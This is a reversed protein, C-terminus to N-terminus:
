ILPLWPLVYNISLLPPRARLFQKIHRFQGLRSPLSSNLPPLPFSAAPLDSDRAFVTHGFVQLM